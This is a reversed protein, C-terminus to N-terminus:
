NPKGELIVLDALVPIKRDALALLLRRVADNKDRALPIGIEETSMEGGALTFTKASASWFGFEDKWARVAGIAKRTL